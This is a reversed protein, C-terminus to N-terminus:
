RDWVGGDERMVEEQGSLFVAFCFQAGQLFFV